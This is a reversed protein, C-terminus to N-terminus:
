NNKEVSQALRQYQQMAEIDGALITAADDILLEVVDDKFECTVDTTITSGDELNICGLFEVKRPFRYYTIMPDIIQFKSSTYIRIKNGIITAFTEAWDFSPESNTDNLLVDVDSEAALYVIMNREPCKDSKAKVSIRKFDMYDSPLSETEFYIPNNIQGTLKKSTLIRQLDDINHLTQESGEKLSNKGAIQRSAWQIQAKNFAEAIQWCELNDYDLSSLKNLRQKIKIQLLNNNM